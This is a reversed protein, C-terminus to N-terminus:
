LCAKKVLVFIKEIPFEFTVAEGQFTQEPKRVAGITDSALGEETKQFLRSEARLALIKIYNIVHQYDEM